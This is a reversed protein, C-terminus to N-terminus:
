QVTINLNAQNVLGDRNTVTFTLKYIQGSINPLTFQYDYSFNDGKAGTLDETYIVTSPLTDIALSISFKKLVDEEESKKANIGITAITGGAITTDKSIYSAGTKFSIQPLLGEDEECSIFYGIISIFLIAKIINKM